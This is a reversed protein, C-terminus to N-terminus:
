RLNNGNFINKHSMLNILFFFESFKKKKETYIRKEYLKIVNESKIEKFKQM